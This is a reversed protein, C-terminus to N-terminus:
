AHDGKDAIILAELEAVSREIRFHGQAATRVWCANADDPVPYIAIIQNLRIRGPMDLPRSGEYPLRPATCDVFAPPKPM